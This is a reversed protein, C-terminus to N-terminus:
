AVLRWLHRTQADSTREVRGARRLRWLALYVLSPKLKLEDVLQERTMVGNGLATLVREDRDVTEQSRPRGRRRPTESFDPIPETM